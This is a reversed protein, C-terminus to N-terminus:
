PRASPARILLVDVFYVVPDVLVSGDGAGAVMAAVYQQHLDNLEIGMREVAVNATAM